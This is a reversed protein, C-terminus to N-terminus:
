DMLVFSEPLESKAVIELAAKRIEDNLRDEELPNSALIRPDQHILLNEPLAHIRICDVRRAATDVEVWAL